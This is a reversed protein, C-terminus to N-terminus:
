KVVARVAAVAFTDAAAVVGQRSLSDCGGREIIADVAIRDPNIMGAELLPIGYFLANLQQFLNGPVALNKILEPYKATLRSLVEADAEDIDFEGRIPLLRVTGDRDGRSGGYRPVDHHSVLKNRYQVVCYAPLVANLDLAPLVEQVVLRKRDKTRQTLTIERGPSGSKALESLLVAIFISAFSYVAKLLMTQQRDRVFVNLDFVAWDRGRVSDQLEQGLTDALALDQHATRIRSEALDPLDHRAAKLPEIVKHEFDRDLWDGPTIPM